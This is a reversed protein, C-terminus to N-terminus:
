DLVAWWPAAPPHVRVPVDGLPTPRDLLAAPDAFCEAVGLTRTCFPMAYAPASIVPAAQPACASVGLAGLTAWVRM